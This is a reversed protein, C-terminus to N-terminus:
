TEGRKLIKKILDYIHLKTLVVYIPHKIKYELTQEYFQEKKAKRDYKLLIHINEQNFKNKLWEFEPKSELLYRSILEKTIEINKRIGYGNEIKEKNPNEKVGALKKKWKKM